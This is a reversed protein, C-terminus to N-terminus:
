LRSEKSGNEFCYCHRALDRPCGTRGYSRWGGVSMGCSLRVTAQPLAPSLGNFHMRVNQESDLLMKLDLMDFSFSGLGLDIVMADNAAM